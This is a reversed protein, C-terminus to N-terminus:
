PASPHQAAFLNPRCSRANHIVCNIQRSQGSSGARPFGCHEGLGRFGACVLCLGGGAGPSQPLPRLWGARGEHGGYPAPVLCWTWWFLLLALVGGVELEALGALLCPLGVELEEAKKCLAQAVRGKEGPGLPEERIVDVVHAVQLHRPASTHNTSARM